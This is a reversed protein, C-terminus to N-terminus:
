CIETPLVVCVVKIVFRESIHVRVPLIAHELAVCEFFRQIINIIDIYTDLMGGLIRMLRSVVKEGSGYDDGIQQCM